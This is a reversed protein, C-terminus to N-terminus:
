TVIRVAQDIGMKEVAIAPILAPVVTAAAVFTTRDSAFPTDNPAFPAVIVAETAAAVCDVAGPANAAPV